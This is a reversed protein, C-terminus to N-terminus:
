PEEHEGGAVLAHREGRVAEADPPCLEPFM